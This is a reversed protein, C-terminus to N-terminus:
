EKILWGVILGAVTKEIIIGALWTFAILHTIPMVAYSVYGASIGLMLGILSGYIAGTKISKNQIYFKYLLVFTTSVAIKVLFLLLNKMEEYPRWLESTNEYSSMLIVGHIIFDSIMWFLVILSISIISKKM